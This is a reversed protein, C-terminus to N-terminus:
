SLEYSEALEGETSSDAPKPYKPTAFRLLRPYAFASVWNVVGNANSAVADFHQADGNTWDKMTGGPKARATSDEPLSLLGSKDKTGGANGGKNSSSGSSGCAALIASALAAGGAAAIAGRRGLRHGAFGSWYSTEM